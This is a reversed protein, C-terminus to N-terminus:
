RERYMDVINIYVYRIHNLRKLKYKGQASRIKSLNISHVYSQVKYTSVQSIFLQECIDNTVLGFISITFSLAKFQIEYTQTICADIM